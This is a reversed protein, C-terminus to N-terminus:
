RDHWPCDPRNVGTAVRTPPKPAVRRNVTHQTSLMLFGTPGSGSATYQRRRIRTSAATSPAKATIAQNHGEPPECGVAKGLSDGDALGLAVAEAPAEEVASGETLGVAVPSAEGLPEASGDPSARAQRDLSKSIETATSVAAGVAPPSTTKTMDIAFV